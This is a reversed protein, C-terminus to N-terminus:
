ENRDRVFLWHDEESGDARFQYNDSDFGKLDEPKEIRHECIWRSMMGRARKAGFSNFSLGRPGEDKFDVTIIRANAPPCAEVAHWYEKSALNIIVGSGEQALDHALADAIRTGWHDYLTKTRGPAWRTGMELRYPRILDLPRLLGYLGSLIRLHNQAFDIAPRDLTKAEFGAYVDGSFAYIAPREEAADFAKYREANLTALKDSIRMLATLKKPGLKAAAHALETAEEAFRPHSPTVDPVPTKYDLSKAPSIVALM